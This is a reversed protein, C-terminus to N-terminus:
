REPKWEIIEASENDARDLLGRRRRSRVHPSDIIAQAQARASQTLAIPQRKTAPDVPELVIWGRTEWALLRRAAFPRTRTGDAWTITVAQGRNRHVVGRGRTESLSALFWTASVGDQRGLTAEGARSPEPSGLSGKAHVRATHAQCFGLSGAAAPEGLPGMQCGDPHQCYGPSARSTRTVNARLRKAAEALGDALALVALKSRCHAIIRGPKKELQLQDGDEIVLAPFKDTKPDYGATYAVVRLPREATM